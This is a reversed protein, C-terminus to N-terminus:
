KLPVWRDAAPDFGQVAATNSTVELRRGGVAYVYRGDSAAALPDGPVPIGAADHWSIGDFVETPIVEAPSPSARPRPPAPAGGASWSSRTGWWRRRALAVRM